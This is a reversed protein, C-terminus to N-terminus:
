HLCPFSLSISRLSRSRTLVFQNGKVAWDERYGRFCGAMCLAAVLDYALSLGLRVLGSIHVPLKSYLRLEQSIGNLILLFFFWQLQPMVISVTNYFM